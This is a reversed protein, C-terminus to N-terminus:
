KSAGHVNKVADGAESKRGLFRVNPYGSYSDLLTVFYKSRGFLEHEISGVVGSYVFNLPAAKSKEKDPISTRSLRCLKGKLCTECNLRQVLLMNEFGGTM